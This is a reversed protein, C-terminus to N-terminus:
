AGDPRGPLSLVKINPSSQEKPEGSVITVKDVTNWTAPSCLKGFTSDTITSSQRGM